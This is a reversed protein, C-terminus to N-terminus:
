ALSHLWDMLGSDSNWNPMVKPTLDQYANELAIRKMETDARAYIETTAIDSHGLLDRIYVLNVGAQLLHMAKTHRLMHPTLNESGYKQLIYTIGPRTLKHLQRNFFLPFDLKEHSNLNNESIYGELLSTTKSMLPVFRVKNGKGTLKVVPCGDLRVDRVTLNILETVRAGTDYLM